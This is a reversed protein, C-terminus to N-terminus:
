VKLTKIFRAPNGAVLTFAAVDNTVVSGAAVIAGDGITVGKLIIANFGIWVFDGIKVKATKVHGKLKPYGEKVQKKYSEARENACTEHANTDMVNVNHSILVHKGIEIQDASWIRSHDGLYCYEGITISGGFPTILLTGAIQSGEGIVIKSTDAQMNHIEATPLFLVDNGTFSNQFDRKYMKQREFIFEDLEAINFLRRASSRVIKKIISKM